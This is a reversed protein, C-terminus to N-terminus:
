EQWSHDIILPKSVNLEEVKLDRVGAYPHEHIMKIADEKTKAFVIGCGEGYSIDYNYEFVKLKM